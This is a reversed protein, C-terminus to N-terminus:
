TGSRRTACGPCVGLYEVCMSLIRFGGLRRPLGGPTRRGAPVDAVCGCRVCRVHAHPRLDADYRAERGPVALKRIEGTRVFLELNRYVTGLSVRPLRERVRAHIETATPHTAEGAIAERIAARPESHRMAGEEM